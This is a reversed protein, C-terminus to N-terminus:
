SGIPALLLISYNLYSTDSPTTACVKLELVQSDSAPPNGLELGAQDVFHTGPYGPSCMSVRDQFFGFGLVFCFLFFVLFFFFFWFGGLFLYSTDGQLHTGTPPAIRPHGLSNNRGGESSKSCWSTFLWCPSVVCLCTRM